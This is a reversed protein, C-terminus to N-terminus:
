SALNTLVAQVQALQSPTFPTSSVPSVLSYVRRGQGTHELRRSKKLGKGEPNLYYHYYDDGGGGGRDDDGKDDGGDGQGGSGDDDGDDGCGGGDDDGDDGCGGGDDDGNDGDGCGGGGNDGNDGDGCGGGDDMMVRIMM